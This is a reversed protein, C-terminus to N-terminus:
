GRVATAVAKVMPGIAVCSPFADYRKEQFGDRRSHCISVHDSGYDAAGTGVLVPPGRPESLGVWDRLLSQDAANILLGSDVEIGGVIYFGVTLSLLEGLWATYAM